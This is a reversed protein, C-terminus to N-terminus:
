SPPVPRAGCRDFAARPAHANPPQSAPNASPSINHAANPQGALRDMRTAPGILPAISQAPSFNPSIRERYAGGTSLRTTNNATANAVLSTATSAPDITALSANLSFTRGTVESEQRSYSSRWSLVLNSGLKADANLSASARDQFGPTMGWALSTIVAGRAPNGYDYTHTLSRAETYSASRSLSVQVGLRNGLFVDAYDLMANPTIRRHSTQSPDRVRGTSLDASNGSLAFRYTFL